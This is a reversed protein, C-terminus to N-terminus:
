QASTAALPGAGDQAQAVHQDAHYSSRVLPGAAVHEFGLAYAAIRGRMEARWDLDPTARAAYPYGLSVVSKYRADLRRPDFRREPQRALYTMSANSGEALWQSYFDEREILPHLRAFGVLVFGLENAAHTLTEPLSDM